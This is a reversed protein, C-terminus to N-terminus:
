IEVYEQPANPSIPGRLLQNFLYGEQVQYFRAVNKWHKEFDYGM